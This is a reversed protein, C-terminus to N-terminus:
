RIAVLSKLLGTPGPNPIVPVPLGLGRPEVASLAALGNGAQAVVEVEALRQLQYCLEERALQEDDVIGATISMTMKLIYSNM